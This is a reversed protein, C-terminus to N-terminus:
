EKVEKSCRPSIISFKKSNREIPHHRDAREDLDKMHLSIKKERPVGVLCGIVKM